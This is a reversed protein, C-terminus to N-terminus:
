SSSDPRPDGLAGRVVLFALVAVVVGGAPHMAVSGAVDGHMLHCVSRTLGCGLCRWGTLRHWLCLDFPVPRDPPLIAALLLLLAPAAAHIVRSTIGGESGSGTGGGSRGDRAYATHVPPARRPMPLRAAITM